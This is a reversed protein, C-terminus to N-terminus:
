TPKTKNKEEGRKAGFVMGSLVIPVNHPLLLFMILASSTVPEFCFSSEITM